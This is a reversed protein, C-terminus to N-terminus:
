NSPNIQLYLFIKLSVQNQSDEYFEIQRSEEESYGLVEKVIERQLYKEIGKIKILFVKKISTFQPPTPRM